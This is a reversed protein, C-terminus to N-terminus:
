PIFPALVLEIADKEIEEVPSATLEFGFKHEEELGYDGLLELLGLTSMNYVDPMGRLISDIVDSYDDGNEVLWQKVQERHIDLLQGRISGLDLDRHKSALHLLSAATLTVRM